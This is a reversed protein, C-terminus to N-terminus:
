LRKIECFITVGTDAYSALHLVCVSAQAPEHAGRPLQVSWLQFRNSKRHEHVAIQREDHEIVLGLTRSPISFLFPRFPSSRYSKKHPQPSKTPSAPNNKCAASSAGYTCHLKHVQLQTAKTVLTHDIYSHLQTATYSSSLVSISTLPKSCAKSHQAQQATNHKVKSHQETHQM